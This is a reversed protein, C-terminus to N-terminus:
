VSPSNFSRRSILRPTQSTSLFIIARSFHVLLKKSPAATPQVFLFFFDSIAWKWPPVESPTTDCIVSPNNNESVRSSKRSFELVNGLAAHATRPYVSCEVLGIIDISVFFPQNKWSRFKEGVDCNPNLSRYSRIWWWLLLAFSLQIYSLFSRIGTRIVHSM